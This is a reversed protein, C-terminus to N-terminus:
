AGTEAPGPLGDAPGRKEPEREALTREVIVVLQAVVESRSGAEPRGATDGGCGAGTLGGILGAAAALLGLRM